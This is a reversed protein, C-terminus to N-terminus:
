RQYSGNIKVFFLKNTKLPTKKKLFSAASWKKWWTMPQKYCAGRWGRPWNSLRAGRIESCAALLELCWPIEWGEVTWRLFHIPSFWRWCNGPHRSIAIVLMSPCTTILLLGWSRPCKGSGFPGIYSCPQREHHHDPIRCVDLSPGDPGHPSCNLWCRRTTAALTTAPPPWFLLVTVRLCSRFYM